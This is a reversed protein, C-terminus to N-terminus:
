RRELVKIKRELEAIRQELKVLYATFQEPYKLLERSIM